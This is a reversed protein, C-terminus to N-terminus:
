VSFASSFFNLARGDSKPGKLLTDYPCRDECIQGFSTLFELLDAASVSGDGNLDGQCFNEAISVERSGDDLLALPDNTAASVPCQGMVTPGM